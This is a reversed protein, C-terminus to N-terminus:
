SQRKNKSLRGGAHKYFLSKLNAVCLWVQNNHWDNGASGASKDFKRGFQPSLREASKLWQEAQPTNMTPAAM